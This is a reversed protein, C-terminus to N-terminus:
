VQKVPITPFGGFNALNDFRHCNMMTKDCSGPGTYGCPRSKFEWACRQSYRPAGGYMTRYMERKAILKAEEPSTLRVPESPSAALKAAIPLAPALGLLKLLKRRNLNM